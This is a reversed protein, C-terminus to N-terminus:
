LDDPFGFHCLDWIQQISNEKGKEIMTRVTSWDYAYPRREVTSWRIGERVTGIDYLSLNKYDEDLWQLHGSISLFDVRNGFCNLKDTCEFGGMWFSRFPNANLPDNKTFVM